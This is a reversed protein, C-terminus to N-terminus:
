KELERGQFRLTQGPTMELHPIKDADLLKFFPGADQTLLPMTKYHMPVVLRPNVARAAMAAADPEMGFHGGINILAVDVDLAALQDMDRFFATDGTDYITPGDKVKVVFGVPSGGYLPPKGPGADLGSGHVAQTLQVVVEGDGLKLEGGANGLTQYGAQAAPYGLSVLASGLETTAVLKAGTKKALEIAEGVHDSHGHTILIYDARKVAAAPDAGNKAAPNMPNKLWPDIFLVLGKPTTLEFAAHGHWQLTTVGAGLARASLVFVLLAPLLAKM